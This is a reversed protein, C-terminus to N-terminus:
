GNFGGKKTLIRKKGLKALRMKLKAEETHKYGKANKNGKNLESARKVGESNEKTLGKTPSIRGKCKLSVAQKQKASTEKGYQPNLNGQKQKSLLKRVRLEKSPNLSGSIFGEGGPCKPDNTLSFGWSKYLSIYHPEWFRWENEAIEDIIELIPKLNKKQLSKIWNNKITSTKLSSNSLHGYELRTIPNNAKGIYCKNNNRPDWLIYIFTLKQIHPYKNYRSSM